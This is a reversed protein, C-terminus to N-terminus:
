EEVYGEITIFAQTPQEGTPDTIFYFVPFRFVLRTEKPLEWGQGRWVILDNASDYAHLELPIAQLREAEPNFWSSSEAYQEQAIFGWNYLAVDDAIAKLKAQGAARQGAEDWVLPEAQSVVLVGNAVQGSVRVLGPAIGALTAPYRSCELSFGNLQCFMLTNEGASPTAYVGILDTVPGDALPAGPRNFQMELVDNYLVPPRTPLPAAPTPTSTSCAALLLTALVVMLLTQRNILKM